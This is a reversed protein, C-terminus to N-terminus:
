HRCPRAPRCCTPDSSKNDDSRIEPRIQALLGRAFDLLLCGSRRISIATRPISAPFRVRLSRKARSLTYAPAADARRVSDEAATTPLRRQVVDNLGGTTTFAGDSANLQREALADDRDVFLRHFLIGAAAARDITRWGNSAVCLAERKSTETFVSPPPTVPLGARHAM